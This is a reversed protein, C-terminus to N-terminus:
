MFLRTLAFYISGGWGAQGGGRKRRMALGGRERSNIGLNRM